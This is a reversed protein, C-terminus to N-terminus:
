ESPLKLTGSPVRAKAGPLEPQFSGFPVTTRQISSKKRPPLAHRRNPWGFSSSITVSKYDAPSKLFCSLKESESDRKHHALFRKSPPCEPLAYSTLEILHSFSTYFTWQTLYSESRNECTYFLLLM